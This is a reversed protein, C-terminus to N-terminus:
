PYIPRPQCSKGESALVEASLLKNGPVIGVRPSAPSANNYSVM